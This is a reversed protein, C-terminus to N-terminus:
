RRAQRRYGNSSSNRPTPTCVIPAPQQKVIVVPRRYVPYRNYYAGYFGTGGYAYPNGYYFPSNPLKALRERELETNVFSELARKKRKWAKKEMKSMMRKDMSRLEVLEQQAKIIADSYSSSNQAYSLSVMTVISLTLFYKIITKM